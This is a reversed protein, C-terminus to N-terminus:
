AVAETVAARLKAVLDQLAQKRQRLEEKFFSNDTDAIEMRLDAVEYGLIDLMCQVESYTFDIKM